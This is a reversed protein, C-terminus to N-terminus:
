FMEYIKQKAEAKANKMKQYEIPNRGDGYDFDSKIRDIFYLHAM